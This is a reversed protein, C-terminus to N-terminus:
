FLTVVGALCRRPGLETQLRLAGDDDIGLCTGTVEQEAEQISIIRGTLLCRERFRNLFSFHDDKLNSLERELENLIRILVATRDCVADTLDTLSTAKQRVDDPASALSNNLNVGMGLILQDSNLPHSELLIGSIKKGSAYVDNPWKVRLDAQPALPAIAQCVALGTVLSTLPWQPRPISWADPAILLSFTLSGSSSWWINSGRGRGSTQSEAGILVPLQNPSCRLSQADSNTSPISEHWIIQRVTTEDLVRQRDIM